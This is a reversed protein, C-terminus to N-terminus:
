IRLPSGPPPRRNHTPRLIERALQATLTPANPLRNVMRRELVARVDRLRGPHARQQRTVWTMWAVEVRDVAGRPDRRALDDLAADLPAHTAHGFLFGNREPSWQAGLRDLARAIREEPHEELWTREAVVRRAESALRQEDIRRQRDARRHAENTRRVDNYVAAYYRDCRRAHCRCARQGMRSEADLLDQVRAHRYARVFATKSGPLAYQEHIRELTLRRSRDEARARDRQEEALLHFLAPDHVAGGRAGDRPRSARLYVALFTSVILRGAASALTPDRLAPVREALKESVRALPALASKVTGFSRELPAKAIPDAERQPAHEVGLADYAERAIEALYPTGQDTLLQSGPRDALAETVVRVVTEADETTQVEMSEWLKLHRAGPDQTAIIKLPVGFLQWATTDAALQVGAPVVDIGFRGRRAPPKDPKAPRPRPPPPSPRERARKAWHRFTRESIALARCFTRRDIGRERELRAQACVLRDQAPRGRIPHDALVETAIGLLAEAAALKDTAEDRPTPRRGRRAADAVLDELAPALRRKLRSAVEPRLECSLALAAVPATLWTRDFAAVVAACVLALRPSPRTLGDHSARHPPM